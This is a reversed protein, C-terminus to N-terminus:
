KTKRKYRAFQKGLMGQPDDAIKKVLDKMFIEMEKKTQDIFSEKAPPRSIYQSWQVKGSDDYYAYSPYEPTATTGENVIETLQEMNINNKPYPHKIVTDSIETMVVGNVIRANYANILYKNQRNYLRRHKSKSLRIYTARINRHYSKVLEDRILPLVRLEAVDKADQQLEKSIWVTLHKTFQGMSNRNLYFARKAM